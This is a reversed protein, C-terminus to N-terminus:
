RARRTTRLADRVRKETVGRIGIAKAIEYTPRAVPTGHSRARPALAKTVIEITLNPEYTGIAALVYAAQGDVNLPKGDRHSTVGRASRIAQAIMRYRAETSNETEGRLARIARRVADARDSEGYVAFDQLLESAVRVMALADLEVAGVGARPQSTLSHYAMRLAQVARSWERTRM